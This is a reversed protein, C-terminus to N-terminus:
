KRGTILNAFTYRIHVFNVHLERWDIFCVIESIHPASHMTNKIVPKGTSASLLKRWEYIGENILISAGHGIPLSVASGAFFERVKEYM